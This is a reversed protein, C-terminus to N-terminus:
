RAKRRLGLLNRRARCRAARLLTLTGPGGRAGEDHRMPDRIVKGLLFLGGLLFVGLLGLALYVM